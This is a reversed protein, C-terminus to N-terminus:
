TILLSTFLVFKLIKKLLINLFIPNGRSIRNGYDKKFNKWQSLFLIIDKNHPRKSIVYLDLTLKKRRMKATRVHNEKRDILILKM